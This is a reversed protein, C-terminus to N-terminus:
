SILKVGSELLKALTANLEPNEEACKELASPHKDPNTTCPCTSGVPLIDFCRRCMRMGKESLRSKMQRQYTEVTPIDRINSVVLVDGGGFEMTKIVGGSNMAAVLKEKQSDTLIYYRDDYTIAVYFRIIQDTSM